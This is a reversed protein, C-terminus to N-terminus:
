IDEKNLEQERERDAKIIDDLDPDDYTYIKGLRDVYIGKGRERERAKTVNQVQAVMREGEDLGMIALEILTIKEDSWKVFSSHTSKIYDKFTYDAEINREKDRKKQEVLWNMYSTRELAIDIRLNVGILRSQERIYKSFQAVFIEFDFRVQSKFARTEKTHEGKYRMLEVLFHASEKGREFLYMSLMFDKRERNLTPDALAMILKNEGYGTRDLTIQKSVGTIPDTITVVQQGELNYKELEKKTDSAVEEPTREKTTLPSAGNKVM